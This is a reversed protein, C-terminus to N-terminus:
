RRKPSMRLIIIKLIKKSVFISVSMMKLLRMFIKFLRPCKMQIFLNSMLTPIKPRQLRKLTKPIVIKNANLCWLYKVPSLAPTPLKNSKRQSSSHHISSANLYLFARKQLNKRQIKCRPWSEM